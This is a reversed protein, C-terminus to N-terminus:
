NVPIVMGDKRLYNAGETVVTDGKLLGMAVVVRDGIVPGTSIRRISARGKSFKYVKAMDDRADLLADVPIMLAEKMDHPYIFLRSVFGTRFQPLSTTILLEAEYTGTFPDAVSGLETVEASFRTDPFADMTVIGSDGISLRVIDKDTLSARVVWNNETSGFLIAPYGPAIMENSEVLIKLVKGMKPARILSHDLNFDAVKKQAVALEYASKANQFQELTAVSDRFLNEARKLDREAKELGIRAQDVRARIESLDLRALVEGKKVADGEKVPVSQVIGGTKFGLKMEDSTGLLGTTRVPIRYQGERVPVVRVRIPEDRVEETQQSNRCATALIIFLITGTFVPNWKIITNWQYFHKM